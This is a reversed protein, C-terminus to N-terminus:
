IKFKDGAIELMIFPLVKETELVILKEKVSILRCQSFDCNSALHAAYNILIKSNESSIELIELLGKIALFEINIIEDAHNTEPLKAVIVGPENAEIIFDYVKRLKKLHTSLNTPKGYSDPYLQKRRKAEGMRSRRM